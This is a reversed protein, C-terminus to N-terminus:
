QPRIADTFDSQARQLERKPLNYMEPIAVNFDYDTQYARDIIEALSDKVKFGNPCTYCKRNVSDPFHAFHFGLQDYFAQDAKDIMLHAYLVEEELNIGSVHKILFVTIPVVLYLLQGILDALYFIFCTRLEKTLAVICMLWQYTFRGILWILDGIDTTTMWFSKGVAEVGHGVGISAMKGSNVVKEMRDKIQALGKFFKEIKKGVDKLDNLINDM